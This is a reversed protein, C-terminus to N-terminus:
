DCDSRVPLQRQGSRRPAPPRSRERAAAAARAVHERATTRVRRRRGTDLSSGFVVRPAAAAPRAADLPARPSSAASRCRRARRPAAEGRRARAGLGREREHPAVLEHRARGLVLARGRPARRRARATGAAPRRRGDASARWSVVRTRQALRPVDHARAGPEREEDAAASRPAVRIPRTRRVAAARTAFARAPAGGSPRCTPPKTGIRPPASSNKPSSSPACYWTAGDEGARRARVRRREPAREALQVLGRAPAARGVRVVLLHAALAFRRARARVCARARGLHIRRQALAAARAPARARAPRSSRSCRAPTHSSSSSSGRTHHWPSKRGPSRAAAVDDAAGRRATRRRARRPGGARTRGTGRARARRPRGPRSRPRTRRAARRARPTRARRRQPWGVLAAQQAATSQSRARRSARSPSRGGRAAAATGRAPRRARARSRAAREVRVERARVGRACPRAAARRARPCRRVVEHPEAAARVRAQELGPGRRGAGGGPGRPRRRRRGRALRRRPEASRPPSSSGAAASRRAASASARRPRAPRPRSRPRSRRASATAAPKEHLAHALAASAFRSATPAAGDAAARAAAPSPTPASAATMPCSARVRARTPSRSRARARRRARRGRRRAAAARSRARRSRARGRAARAARSGRARRPELDGGRRRRGLAKRPARRRAGSPAVPRPARARLWTPQAALWACVCLACARARAACM